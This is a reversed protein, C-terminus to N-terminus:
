DNSQRPIFKTWGGNPAFNGHVGHNHMYLGSLMTARSPCCLPFSVYAENFTTGQAALLSQVNPMASLESTTMDDTLIYVVNKQAPAGQADRASIAGAAIALLAIAAALIPWSRAHTPIRRALALM